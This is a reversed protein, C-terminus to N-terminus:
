GYATNSANYNIDKGTDSCINTTKILIPPQGMLYKAIHICAFWFPVFFEAIREVSM